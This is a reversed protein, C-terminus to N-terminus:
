NVMRSPVGIWRVVELEMRKLVSTISSDPLVCLMNGTVELLEQYSAGSKVMFKLDDVAEQIDVEPQLRDMLVNTMMECVNKEEPLISESGAWLMHQSIDVEVIASKFTVDQFLAEPNPMAPHLLMMNGHKDYCYDYSACISRMVYRVTPKDTQKLTTTLFHNLVSEIYLFGTIYLFGKIIADFTHYLLRIKKAEKSKMRTSIPLVLSDHLTLKATGNDQSFELTCWYRKMLSEAYILEDENKIYTEGQEKLLRKLLREEGVSVYLIEDHLQYYAMECLESRTPMDILDEEMYDYSMEWLTLLDCFQTTEDFISACPYHLLRSECSRLQNYVLESMVKQSWDQTHYTPTREM